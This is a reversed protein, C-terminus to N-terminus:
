NQPAEPPAAGDQEHRQMHQLYEDWLHVVVNAQMRDKRRKLPDRTPADALENKVQIFDLPHVTRMLAMAGNQGVVMQEFRRGSVLRNGSPVQVAWLDEADATMRLPHPDGDRAMRRIVDVEFGDDNVATQLQDPRVRFTKDAKRLVGIMSTDLRKMASIFRLHKRTDYLLDIDRTAMASSDVRVGCAAEYAYLAHTGVTLLDDGVGAQDLAALVSIVVNPVRGVLDAKNRRQMTTLKDALAKHRTTAREKRAMFRTYIARNNDSDPGLSKQAGTTSTRVLYTKGAVERWIMSGRVEALDKKAAILANFVALADLYQRCQDETCPVIANMAKLMM